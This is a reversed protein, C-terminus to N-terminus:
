VPHCSMRNWQPSDGAELVLRAWYYKNLSHIFSYIFSHAFLPIFRRGGGGGKVLGQGWGLM